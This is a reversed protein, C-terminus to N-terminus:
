KLSFSVLHGDSTTVVVHGDAAALHPRTDLSDTLGAAYPVSQTDTTHGTMPDLLLLSGHSADFALLQGDVLGLSFYLRNGQQPFQWLLDGDALSTAAVQGTEVVVRPHAMTLLPLDSGQAQTWIIKGSGAALGIMRVTGDNLCTPCTTSVGETAIVVGPGGADVGVYQFTLTQNASVTPPPATATWLLAGTQSYAHVAGAATAVLLENQSVALDSPTPWPRLGPALDRVLNGTTPDYLPIGIAPVAVLGGFLLPKTSAVALAEPRVHWLRAGTALDYAALSGGAMILVRSGVVLPPGPLESAPMVQEQWLPAGSALDYAALNGTPGSVLVRGGVIVPIGAVQLSAPAYRRTWAATLTSPAPVTAPVSQGRIGCGTM